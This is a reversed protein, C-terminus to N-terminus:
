EDHDRKMSPLVAEALRANESAAIARGENLEIQHIATEVMARADDPSRCVESMNVEDANLMRCITKATKEGWVAGVSESKFPNSGHWVIIFTNSQYVRPYYSFM